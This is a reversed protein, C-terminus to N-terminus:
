WRIPADRVYQYRNNELRPLLRTRAQKLVRAVRWPLTHEVIAMGRFLRVTQRTVTTNKSFAGYHIVDHRFRNRLYDFQWGMDRLSKQFYASSDWSSRDVPGDPLDERHFAHSVQSLEFAERRYLCFQTHNRENLEIMRGIYPEYTIEKPSYDTSYGILDKRTQLQDLMFGLFRPRLIEFDADVQGVIRADVRPLERDWIPDCYEFPGELKDSHVRQRIAEIEADQHDNRVLDVWPMREWRPFYYAKQEPLLYNSYVRLSYDLGRFKSYSRVAYDAIVVDRPTIIM